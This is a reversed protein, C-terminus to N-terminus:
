IELCRQPGRQLGLSGRWSLSGEKGIELTLDYRSIMVKMRATTGVPVLRIQQMVVRPKWGGKTGLLVTHQARGESKPGRRVTSREV